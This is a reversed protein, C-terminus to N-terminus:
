PNRCDVFEVPQVEGMRKLPKSLHRRSGAPPEYWGPVIWRTEKKRVPEAARTDCHRCRFGQNRGVSSMTRGCCPCVPNSIKRYEPALTLVH